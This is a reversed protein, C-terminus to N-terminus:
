ELEYLRFPYGCLNVKDIERTRAMQDPYAIRFRDEEGAYRTLLLHTLGYRAFPAEDNYWGSGIRVAINRNEVVAALATTGGIVMDSRERLSRSFAAVTRRPNRFAKRSPLLNGQVVYLCVLAAVAIRVSRRLPIPKNRFHLAARTVAWLLAACAVSVLLKSWVRPFEAPLVSNLPVLYVLYFRVAVTTVLLGLPDATWWRRPRCPLERLALLWTLGVVALGLSAPLLPYFYRPPNHRFLSTLGVGCVFWVTLVLVVPPMDLVRRGTCRYLVLGAVSVSLIWLQDKGHGSLAFFVPSTAMTRFAEPLNRPWSMSLWMRGAKAIPAANPIRFWLLWPLFVLLFGLAFWAAPLLARKTSRARVWTQGCILLIGCGAAPLFYVSISKTAYSLMCFCGALFCRLGTVPRRAFCAVTCLMFFIMLNEFLALRGFHLLTYNAAFLFVALLVASRGVARLGYVALLVALVSWFAGFGRTAALGTGFLRFWPIQLLVYTPSYVYPDWEDPRLKGFLVYSRAAHANSLGDFYAGASRSLKRPPDARLNVFYMACGAVLVLGLLAPGARAMLVRTKM